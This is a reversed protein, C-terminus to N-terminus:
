PMPYSQGKRIVANDAPDDFWTNYFEIEWNGAKLQAYGAAAQVFTADLGMAKTYLAYHYNGFAQYEEGKTYKYDYKQRYDFHKYVWMCKLYFALKDISVKRLSDPLSFGEVYRKVKAELAAIYRGAEEQCEKAKRRAEALNAEIDVGPPVIIDRTADTSIAKFQEIECKCNPYVQPPPREFWVDKMAQCKECAHPKPKYRWYTKGENQKSETRIDEGAVASMHKPMGYVLQDDGIHQNWNGAM